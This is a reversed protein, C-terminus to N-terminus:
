PQQVSQYEVTQESVMPERAIYPEKLSCISPLFFLGFLIKFKKWWYDFSTHRNLLFGFIIYKLINCLEDIGTQWTRYLVGVLWSRACTWTENSLLTFCDNETRIWLATSFSMPCVLKNTSRDPDATQRMKHILICRQSFPHQIVVFARCLVKCCWFDCYHYDTNLESINIYSVGNSNSSVIMTLSSWTDGVPGNHSTYAPSIPFHFSM